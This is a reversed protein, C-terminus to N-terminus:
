SSAETAALRYESYRRGVDDKKYSVAIGIGAKRLDYIRAALRDIGYRSAILPTIYGHRKIHDFVRETQRM